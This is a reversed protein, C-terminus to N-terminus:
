KSYSKKFLLTYPIQTSAGWLFANLDHTYTSYLIDPMNTKYKNNKTNIKIYSSLQIEQATTQNKNLVQLSFSNRYALIHLARIPLTYTDPTNREM